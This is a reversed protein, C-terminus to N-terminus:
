PKTLANSKLNIFTKLNTILGFILIKLHFSALSVKTTKQPVYLWSLTYSNNLICSFCENTFTKSRSYKFRFKMFLILINNLIYVSRKYKANFFM